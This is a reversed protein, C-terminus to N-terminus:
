GAPILRLVIDGKGAMEKSVPFVIEVSLNEIDMNYYAIFAPGSPEEGIESIYKLIAGYVKGVVNPLNVASTTTQVSLYSIYEKIIM